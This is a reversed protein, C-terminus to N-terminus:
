RAPGRQGELSLSVTVAAVHHKDPDSVTGANILATDVHCVGAGTIEEFASILRSVERTLSAELARRHKAIENAPKM